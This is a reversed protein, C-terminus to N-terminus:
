SLEGGIIEIVQQNLMSSAKILRNTEQQINNKCKSIHLRREQIMKESNSPSPGGYITKKIISQKPDLLLKYEKFSIKNKKYTALEKQFISYADDSLPELKKGLCQRVYSGVIHHAERFPIGMKITIYEALEMATSFNTILINISRKEDVELGKILGAMVDITKKILLYSDWMKPTMEQLDLNYSSPLAKYICITSALNGLITGPCTRAIETVVSNKKQPMASSASAYSDPVILIGTENNSMFNIDESIRSLTLAISSTIFIFELLTDRSSVADISNGVVSAFGLYDSIEKRNINVTTGASAAAGMPSCNVRSYNEILRSVDRSLMNEYALLWHALTVPQAVQLHTYTPIILETSKDAKELIVESLNLISSITTLISERMVMRIATAVQDNRSKGLNLYGGVEGVKERVKQEVFMHVDELGSEKPLGEKINLGQILKSTDSKSLVGINYLAIVHAKNIAIVSSLLPSDHEISATYKLAKENMEELRKGRLLDKM